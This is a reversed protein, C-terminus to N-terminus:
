GLLMEIKLVENFKAKTSKKKQAPASIGSNEILM